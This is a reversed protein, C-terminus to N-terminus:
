ARWKGKGKGKPSPSLAPFEDEEAVAGGIRKSEEEALSLQLAYELDDMEKNTSAGGSTELVPSSRSRSTPSRRAKAYRIPIDFGANGGPIPHDQFYASPSILGGDAEELSRRIAEALDDDIAAEVDSRRSNDAVTGSVSAEPTITNSRIASKGGGESRRRKDEELSEQSLLAAYALAEEESGLLDVGFRKALQNAKRHSSEKERELEYAENAIFDKIGARGTGAFREGGNNSGRASRRLRRKQSRYQDAATSSFSWYRLQTGLSVMGRLVTPDPDLVIAGAAFMNIGVGQVSTQAQVLRRRARSSFRSNLTRIPQTTSALPDWAQVLGDNGGHVLYLATLALSAIEPSETYIIRVPEIMNIIESSRAVPARIDWILICGTKTGAAVFRARQGPIDSPSTPQSMTSQPSAYPSSANSATSFGLVPDESLTLTAFTSSDLTTTTLEINRFGGFSLASCRWEEVLTGREPSSSTSVYSSSRLRQGLPQKFAMEPTSARGFLSVPEQLESSRSTVGTNDKEQFKCRTFRKVCAIDDEEIGCEFVAMAEGAYNGDDGAFDVELRRRMDWGNCSRRFDKPQKRLFQQIEKTESRIQEVSLCMGDWSSRPSYSGDIDSDNYPNFRAARRSPEVLSWYVSRGTVWALCETADDSAVKDKPLAGRTPFKTLYFLEGLANLAVAWIRNQAQRKFSYSEDVAIAIIPVGPSLCWRATLEGRQMRHSRLGDSGLSCATVVGNASGTMIGVLGESLSPITSTKAIWVATIAGSVSPMRPIGLDPLSLESAPAIFRGRQEEIPRYYVFGGDFGIGYVMGHPQSVDMVNPCGITDGAGLGWQADGPFREAFQAFFEPDSLGWSDVKCASPDSSSAAGVDDSGHIFRPLRKNLGSGFTAHIHNVTTFTQANYMVIPNAAQSQGARAAALSTPTQVPRGRTLSRLLRTRLIYESRWSALATLRTFSRKESRLVEGTDELLLQVSQEKLSEPGLFYRAFAVRWAHPTTVLANFRRSVLSVASLDNPSLHSLAHTLIENPLTTIPSRKDDPTRAKKIVEFVPGDSKKRILQAVSKEYEEIRSGPSPSTQSLRASEHLDAAVRSHSPAADDRAVVGPPQDPARREGAPPLSSAPDYDPLRGHQPSNQDVQTPEQTLINQSDHFPGSQMYNPSFSTLHLLPSLWNTLITRPSLQCVVCQPGESGMGEAGDNWSAVNSSASAFPKSNRKELIFHELMKEEEEPTPHASVQLGAPRYRSSTLLRTQEREVSRQFRSRTMVGESSLHRALLRAEEEEEANHPDLLRSLRTMDILPDDVPTGERTRPFFSEQTPTRQGDDLDETSMVSLADDDQTSTTAMSVVSTNDDDQHSDEYQGSTDIDGWWGGTKWWNYLRSDLVDDGSVGDGRIVSGEQYMGADELRRRTEAEVDVNTDSPQILHGEANVMWFERVSHNQADKTDLKQKKGKAKSPTGALKRVWVPSYAIGLKRLITMAVKAYLTMLLWFIGKIFQFTLFWRGRRQQIGVGEDRGVARSAESTPNAGRTKREHAYGSGQPMNHRGVESQDVLSVGDAIMDSRLEQPLADRNRRLLARRDFAEQFRKEELWTSPSINIRTGENLYVAESAATLVIFGFKLIFTYFDEQWNVRIPTITSLHINAQLNQYAFRLRGTLSSADEHGSPVAMATLIFALAYVFGCALIGIMILLHPIFGVICITPFRLIGVQTGPDGVLDTARIFAWVFASLYCLGWIGTSVLRVRARLGTIALVNSSFHSLSSILSIVLVEPPVNAFQVAAAGSLVLSTGDFTTITKAPLPRFMDPGLPNTIIAEAEAFALSHEFITMGTEPSPQRGQLACALTEIFQSFGLSIFLPWLLSLSGSPRPTSADPPLMNAARCSVEDGQGLLLSSSMKWLFGGEGAFETDMGKGSSGYQMESWSPSTQCQIAQLIWQIRYLLIVTPLLYLTLRLYWKNLTIPVRSSAYFQTRNLLIATVFTAIAWKSTMYNFFGGVSKMTQFFSMGATDDQDRLASTAASSISEQAFTGIRTITANAIQSTTPGAIVSGGSRLKGFMTDMHEAFSGARQLLRPVVMLLDMSNPFISTSNMLPSAPQEM